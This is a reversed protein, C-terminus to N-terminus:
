NQLAVCGHFHLAFAVRVAVFGRFPAPCIPHAQSSPRAVASSHLREEATEGGVDEGNPMANVHLAAASTGAEAHGDVNSAANGRTEVTSQASGQRRRYATDLHELRPRGDRPAAPASGGMQAAGMPVPGSAAGSHNAGESPSGSLASISAGATASAEASTSAEANAHLASNNVQAADALICEEQVAAFPSPPTPFSSARASRQSIAPLAPGAQLDESSSQVGRSVSSHATSIESAREEFIPENQLSGLQPSLSQDSQRPASIAEQPAEQSPQPSAHSSASATTHPSDTQTSTSAHTPLSPAQEVQMLRFYM